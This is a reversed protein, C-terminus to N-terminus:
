KENSTIILVFDKGSLEARMKNLGAGSSLVATQDNLRGHYLGILPCGQTHRILNGNHMLIATRNPVDQIHWVRKYKGSASRELWKVLHVGEPICSVNSKNDLWPLELTKLGAGSPLVLEGLTCHSKYNRSLTAVPYM